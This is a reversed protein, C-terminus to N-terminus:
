DAKDRELNARIWLPLRVLKAGADLLQKTTYTPRPTKRTYGPAVYEGAYKYHPLLPIGNLEFATQMENPEYSPANPKM